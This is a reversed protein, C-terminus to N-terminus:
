TGPGALCVRVPIALLSQDVLEGERVGRAELRHGLPDDVALVAVLEIGGVGYRVVVVGEVRGEAVMHDGVHDGPRPM